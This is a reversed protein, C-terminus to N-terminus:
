IILSPDNQKPRGLSFRTRSRHATPRIRWVPLTAYRRTFASITRAPREFIPFAEDYDGLDLLMKGMYYNTQSYNPALEIAKEYAARAGDFNKLQRRAYGLRLWLLYDNPRLKIAAEFSNASNAFDGNRDFLLGQVKHADPNDPEYFIAREAEEYSGSIFASDGYYHSLMQRMASYGFFLVCALYVLAPLYARASTVSRDFATM